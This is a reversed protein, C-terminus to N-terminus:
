YRAFHHARALRRELRREKMKRVQRAAARAAEAIAIYLDKAHEQVVIDKGPMHVLVKASAAQVDNKKRQIMELFFTVHGIRQSRHTLKESQRTVFNRIADTIVMTKSQVIVNM